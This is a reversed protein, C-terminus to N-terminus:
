ARVSSSADPALKRAEHEVRAGGGRQQSQNRRRATPAALSDTMGAGVLRCAQAHPNYYPQDRVWSITTSANSGTPHKAGTYGCMVRQHDVSELLDIVPRRRLGSRGWKADQPERAGKM